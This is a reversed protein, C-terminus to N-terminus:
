GSCTSSGTPTTWSSGTTTTRIKAPGARRLWSAYECNAVRLLRAANPRAGLAMCAAGPPDQDARCRGAVAAARRAPCHQPHQRLDVADRRRAAAPPHHHPDSGGQAAHVPVPLHGVRADGDADPKSVSPKAHGGRQCSPPQARPTGLDSGVSCRSQAPERAV